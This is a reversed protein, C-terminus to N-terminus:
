KGWKSGVKVRNLEKEILAEFRAFDVDSEHSKEELIKKARAVAEEARAVDIEEARESRDVLINVISGSRIDIVGSFVAFHMEEDKTKITLEGKAISSVLPAHTPLVTIVGTTTPVTVYAAEGDFIIKEPTILKIYVKAHEM